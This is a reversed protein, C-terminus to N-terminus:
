VVRFPFVAPAEGEVEVRVLWEVCFLEGAYSVPLEPLHCLLALEGIAGEVRGRHVVEEEKWAPPTRGDRAARREGHM